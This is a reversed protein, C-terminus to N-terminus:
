ICLLSCRRIYASGCVLWTQKHYSSVRGWSSSFYVRKAHFVYNSVIEICTESRRAPQVDLHIPREAERCFRRSDCAQLRCGHLSTLFAKKCKWSEEQSIMAIIARGLKNVKWRTSQSLALAYRRLGSVLKM